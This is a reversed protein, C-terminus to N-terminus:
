RGETRLLNTTQETVSQPTMEGTIASRPFYADVSISQSRPLAAQRNDTNIGSLNRANSLENTEATADGRLFYQIIPKINLLLTLLVWSIVLFIIRASHAPPLSVTLAAVVFAAIFMMVAGISMDRRSFSRKTRHSEDSESLNDNALLAKVFNLQFGCRSCFRTDNSVQQQSCKPCFM